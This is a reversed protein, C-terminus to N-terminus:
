TGPPPENLLLWYLGLQQVAEVFKDFKVPKRVYSNAGLRYSEIQDRQEDSSTLIVVPLLHTLEEERIRKLVEHGDVKPLKLDLIVISPLDTTDRGAHPGTAYLYELAEEGDHMVVINNALNAKKLARICLEEDNPNDEVLLISKATYDMHTSDDM